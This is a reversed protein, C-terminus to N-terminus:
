RYVAHSEFSKALKQRGVCSCIQKEADSGLLGFDTLVSDPISYRDLSSDPHGLSPSRLHFDRGFSSRVRVGVLTMVTFRLPFSSKRRTYLQRCRSAVETSISYSDM